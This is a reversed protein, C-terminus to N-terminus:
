PEGWEESVVSDDDLVLETMIELRDAKTADDSRM